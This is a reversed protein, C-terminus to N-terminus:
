LERLAEIREPLPLRGPTAAAEPRPDVLWLGALYSPQGPVIAGKADIKELASALAPPYRTLSIAGQDAETDAGASAALARGLGFTAAAVTGPRTREHRIQWIEEALVAELEMRDLEVLLASTVALVAKATSTGAALANLGPSDIVLLRPQSVGAATCLGEVLNILRADSHADPTRGGLASAVVRDGGLLGWAALGAGVVVLAILGFVWGATLALVVAIVVAPAAAILAVQGIVRNAPNL